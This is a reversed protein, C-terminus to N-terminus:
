LSIAIYPSVVRTRKRLQKKLMEKVLPTSINRNPSGAVSKSSSSRVRAGMKKVTRRRVQTADIADRVELQPYLFPNNLIESCLEMLLKGLKNLGPYHLPNTTIAINYPLGCGWFTNALAEVLIKDEPLLLADKFGSNSRLKSILVDKMVIYKIDDWSSDASKVCSAITKAEKPTKYQVVKEALDERMHEMCARWQYAHESTPFRTSGLTLPAQDFNSFPGNRYLIYNDPPAEMFYLCRPSDSKHQSM